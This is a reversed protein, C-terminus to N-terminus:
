SSPAELSLPLPLDTGGRAASLVGSRSAIYLSRICRLVLAAVEDVGVVLSSRSDDVSGALRDDVTALDVGSAIAASGDAEIGEVGVAVLANCTSEVIELLNRIAIRKSAM